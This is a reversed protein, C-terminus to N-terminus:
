NEENDAGGVSRSIRGAEPELAQGPTSCTRLIKSIGHSWIGAIIGLVRKRGEDMGARKLGGGQRSKGPILHAV